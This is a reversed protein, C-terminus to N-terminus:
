WTRESRLAVHIWGSCDWVFVCVCVSMSHCRRRAKYVVYFYKVFSMFLIYSLLMLYKADIALYQSAFGHCEKASICENSFGVKM